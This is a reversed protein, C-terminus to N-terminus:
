FNLCVRNFLECFFGFLTNMDAKMLAILHIVQDNDVMEERSDFEEDLSGKTYHWLAEKYQLIWELQMQFLHKNQISILGLKGSRLVNLEMHIRAFIQNLYFLCESLISSKKAPQMNLEFLNRTFDVLTSIYFDFTNHNPLSLLNRTLQNLQLRYITKLLDRLCPIDDYITHKVRQIPMPQGNVVQVESTKTLSQLLQSLMTVFTDIFLCKVEHTSFTSMRINAYEVLCKLALGMIKFRPTPDEAYNASELMQKMSDIIFFLVSITEPKEM